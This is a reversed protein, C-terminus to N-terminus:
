MKTEFVMNENWIKRRGFDQNQILNSNTFITLYDRRRQDGNHYWLCKTAMATDFAVGNTAMETDFAYAFSDGHCKDGHTMLPM